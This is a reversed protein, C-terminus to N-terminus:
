TNLDMIWESFDFHVELDFNVEIMQNLSCPFNKLDHGM